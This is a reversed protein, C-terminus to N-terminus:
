RDPALLVRGVDVWAGRTVAEWAESWEIPDTRIQTLADRSVRLVGFAGAVVLADPLVDVLRPRRDPHLGIGPVSRMLDLKLVELWGDDVGHEFCLLKERLAALGFVARIRFGSSMERAVPAAHTIMTTRWDEVPETELAPWERERSPPYSAIWEKRGFDLYVFPDDVLYEAGCSACRYRQFTGALIASRLDDRRGGNLSVAVDREAEVRCTPCPYRRRAFTSM